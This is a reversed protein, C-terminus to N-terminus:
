VYGATPVISGDALMLEHFDEDEHVQLRLATVMADLIFNGTACIDRLMKVPRKKVLNSLEIVCGRLRVALVIEKDAPGGHRPSKSHSEGAAVRTGTSGGQVTLLRSPLGDSIEPEARDM